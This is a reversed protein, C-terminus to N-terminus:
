ANKQECAYMCVYMCVYMVVYMCVYMCVCVYMCGYMCGYMCVYMCVYMCTCVNIICREMWILACLHFFLSFFCLALWYKPYLYSKLMKKFVDSKAERINRPFTNWLRPATVYIQRRYVKTASIGSTGGPNLWVIFLFYDSKWYILLFFNYSFM